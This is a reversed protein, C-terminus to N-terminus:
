DFLHLEAKVLCGDVDRSRRWQQGWHTVKLIRGILTAQAEGIIPLCSTMWLVSLVYYMANNESSFRAMAVTLLIEHLKSVDNIYALPCVSLCVSVNMAISRVRILLSTIDNEYLLKRPTSLQEDGKRLGNLEQTSV